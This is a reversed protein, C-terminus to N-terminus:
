WALSEGYAYFMGYESPLGMNGLAANLNMQVKLAQKKEEYERDMTMAWQMYDASKAHDDASTGGDSSPMHERSHWMSSSQVCIIAAKLILLHKAPHNALTVVALPPPTMNWDLLAEGLAQNIEVDNSEFEHNLLRNLHRDDRIRRRVCARARGWRDEDSLDPIM